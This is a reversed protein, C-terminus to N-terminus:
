QAAERAAVPVDADLATRLARMAYHLRSHATGLPIGVIDAVRPM